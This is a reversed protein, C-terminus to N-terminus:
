AEARRAEDVEKSQRLLENGHVSSPVHRGDHKPNIKPTLFTQSLHDQQTVRGRGGSRKARQRRAATRTRRERNGSDMSSFTYYFPRRTRDKLLPLIFSDLQSIRLSCLPPLPSIFYKHPCFCALQKMACCPHSRGCAAIPFPVKYLHRVCQSPSPPWYLTKIRVM